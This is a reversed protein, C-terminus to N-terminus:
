TTISTLRPSSVENSKLFPGVLDASANRTEIRPSSYTLSADIIPWARDKVGYGDRTSAAKGGEMPTTTDGTNKECFVRYRIGLTPARAARAVPTPNPIAESERLPDSREAAEIRNEDRAKM